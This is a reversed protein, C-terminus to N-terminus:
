KESMKGKMDCLVIKEGVCSLYELATSSHTIGTDFYYNGVFEYLEMPVDQRLFVVDKIASYDIEDRPHVKFYITREQKYSDVIKQYFALQKEATEFGALEDQYLPQTLVLLTDQSRVEIPKVAFLSLLREKKLDSLNSFLALRPVEKCKKRRKDTDKLVELSNLEIQKVYKSYGLPLSNRFICHYIQRLRSFSEPYSHYAYYNYGDEILSYSRKNSRLYQGIYTWDNFLYIEDFDQLDYQAYDRCDKAEFLVLGTYNLKRLRKVLLERDSITDFLLLHSDECFDLHCMTILLHYVTHCIYLKKM